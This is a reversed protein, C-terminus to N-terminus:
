KVEEGHLIRLIKSALEYEGAQSGYQFGDSYVDDANGFSFPMGDSDLGMDYFTVDEGEPREEKLESLAANGNALVKNVLDYIFDLKDMTRKGM